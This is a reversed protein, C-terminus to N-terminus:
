GCVELCVIARRVHMSRVWRRGCLQGGGSVQMGLRGELLWLYVGFLTWLLCTVINM